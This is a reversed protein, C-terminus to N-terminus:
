RDLATCYRDLDKAAMETTQFTRCLTTSLPLLIRLLLPSSFPLLFMFAGGCCDVHALGPYLPPGGLLSPPMRRMQHAGGLKVTKCAEGLARRHPKQSSVKSLLVVSSRCSCVRPVPTSCCKKAAQLIM